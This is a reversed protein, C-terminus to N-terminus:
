IFLQTFKRKLILISTELMRKLILYIKINQYFIVLGIQISMTFQTIKKLLKPILISGKYGSGGTILINM